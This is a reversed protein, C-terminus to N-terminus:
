VPIYGILLTTVIEPLYCLSEAMCEHIWEGRFKGGMWAAVSCQTSNRTSCLLNKNTIWKLYLLPYMDM